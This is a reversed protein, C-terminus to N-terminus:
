ANPEPEDRLCANEWLCKCMPCRAKCCRFIRRPCRLSFFLIVIMCFVFYIFTARFYDDSQSKNGGEGKVYEDDPDELTGQPILECEEVQCIDM